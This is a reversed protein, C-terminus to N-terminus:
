PNPTLSQPNPTLPQPPTNLRRRLSRQLANLMRGIEDASAAIPKVHEETVYGLEECLVLFTELEAISGRAIAVHQLYERTYARAWGEAINAPVSIAARRMQDALCYRERHPLLEVIGYIEKVLSVSKRWVDLQRYSQIM